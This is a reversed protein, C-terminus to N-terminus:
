HTPILGIPTLLADPYKIEDFSMEDDINICWPISNLLLNFQDNGYICQNGLQGIIPQFGADLVASLM